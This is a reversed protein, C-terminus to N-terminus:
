FIAAPTVYRITFSVHYLFFRAQATDYGEATEIELPGIFRVPLTGANREDRFYITGGTRRLIELRDRQVQTLYRCTIQYTARYGVVDEVLTGSAMESLEGIADYEVQVGNIPIGPIDDASTLTSTTGIRLEYLAM